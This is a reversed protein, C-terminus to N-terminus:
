LGRPKFGSLEWSGYGQNSGSSGLRLNVSSCIKSHVISREELQRVFRSFHLRILTILLYLLAKLKHSSIPSHGFMWNFISTISSEGKKTLGKGMVAFSLGIISRLIFQSTDRPIREGLLVLWVDGTMSIVLLTVCSLHGTTSKWRSFVRMQCCFVALRSMCSIHLMKPLDPQLTMDHTSILSSLMLSFSLDFSNQPM